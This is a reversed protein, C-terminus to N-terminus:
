HCRVSRRGGRAARAAPRGIAALARPPMSCAPRRVLQWSCGCSQPQSLQPHQQPRPAARAKVSEVVGFTKGATLTAGVQPLEVYVVDGLESQAAAFRAHAVRAADGRRPAPSHRAFSEACVRPRQGQHPRFRPAEGLAPQRSAGRARQRDPARAQAHDTIGITGIDGEVKVWQVAACRSRRTLAMTAYRVAARRSRM